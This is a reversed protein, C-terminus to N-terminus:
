AKGRLKAWLSSGRVGGGGGGGGTARARFGRPKEGVPSPPVSDEPCEIELDLRYRRVSGSDDGFCVRRRERPVFCEPVCNRMVWGRVGRSAADIAAYELRRTRDSTWYHTTQPLPSLAEADPYCSTTTPQQQQAAASSSPSTSPKESQSETTLTNLHLSVPAIDPSQGQPQQQQSQHQQQQEPEDLQEPSPFQFYSYPDNHQPQQQPHSRPPSRSVTLSSRPMNSIPRSRRLAPRKQSTSNRPQSETRPPSSSSSTTQSPYRHRKSSQQSNRTPTSSEYGSDQRVMQFSAPNKDFDDRRSARQRRVPTESPRPIRSTSMGLDDPTCGPEYLEVDQFSHYTTTSYFSTSSHSRPVPSQRSM